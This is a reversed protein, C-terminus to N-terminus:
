FTVPRTKDQGSWGGVAWEAIVQKKAGEGPRERQAQHPWPSEVGCNAVSLWPPMAATRAVATGVRADDCELWHAAGEQRVTARLASSLAQVPAGVVGVTQIPCAPVPAISHAVEM